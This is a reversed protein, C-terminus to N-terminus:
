QYYEPLDDIRLMNQKAKQSLSGNKIEYKSFMPNSLQALPVNNHVTRAIMKYLKFDPYREEGSSKYLVNRGKDDKVWNTVLEIIPNSAALEAANSVDSIFYDYLSCALRCLDFSPNPELLPKKDNMYPGFNYQTAADGKPHFSDSCITLSKFKYVARGFDIIKFIKGFTPVRYYKKDCLYYLFEKKTEVFMVNNTHLDNHTFWFMKQYAILTMIIQMLIAGWEDVSEIENCEMLSDLTDDCEEMLIVNVPFKAIDVFVSDDDSSDETDENDVNDVNDVVEVADENSEPNETDSDNTDPNDAKDAGVETSYSSRSSNYSNSSKSKSKSKSNDSGPENNNDAVNTITEVGITDESTSISAVADFLTHMKEDITDFNIQVVDEDGGGGGGGVRDDNLDDLKLQLRPKCARGSYKSGSLGGACRMNLQENYIETSEEDMSFLKGMNNNFFSNKSFFELDDSVDVEFNRKHAIFAGYYELGHVFNHAHMVKSSLFTFFGDIYASNNVDLVKRNCNKDTSGYQPLAMLTEDLVDYKGSLYKIPDLLPSYKIFIDNQQKDHAHQPNATDTVEAVIYHPDDQFDDIDSTESGNKDKVEDLHEESGSDEVFLKSIDYRSNLVVSNYNKDNLNLFQSYIPLYNQVNELQLKEIAELNKSVKSSTKRYYFEM